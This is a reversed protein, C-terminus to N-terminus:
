SKTFRGTIKNDYYNSKSRTSVLNLVTRASLGIKALMGLHGPLILIDPRDDTVIEDDTLIPRFGAM